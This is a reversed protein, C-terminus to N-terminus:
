LVRVDSLEWNAFGKVPRDLQVGEGGRLVRVILREEGQVQVRAGKRARKPARPKALLVSRDAKATGAPAGHHVWLAACQACHIRAPPEGESRLRPQVHGCVPFLVFVNPFAAVFTIRRMM